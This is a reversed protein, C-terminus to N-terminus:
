KKNKLIEEVILFVEDPSIERLCRKDYQCGLFRFGKYCPRCDLHRSFVFTDNSHPYPGYIREDVPGFFVIIKKNLAKAIHFPGGDNTIVLKSKDILVALQELNIQGCLNIPKNEMKDYIYKCIDSEVKSGVIIIDVCFNSKIKNCLDVFSTKPWRKFYATKGWSDGSGPCVLVFTDNKKTDLYLINEMEKVVTDNIFVDFNYEKPNIKLFRLLDLYYRAVHKQSFGDPIDLKETLFRGREKFNFGIRRKIGAMKFFLGYQSNLSLDFVVDFHKKRINYLFSFYQKLFKFWSKKLLERWYDKEFIFIEDLFPNKKLLPYARNNVIYALYQCSFNEKLNRILPTTFLVDGIGFPNFILIKRIQSM